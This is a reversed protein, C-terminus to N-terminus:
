QFHLFLFLFGHKSLIDNWIVAAREDRTVFDLLGDAAEESRREVDDGDDALGLRFDDWSDLVVEYGSSSCSSSVPTM